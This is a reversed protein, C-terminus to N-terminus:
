MMIVDSSVKIFIDEKVGDSYPKYQDDVKIGPDIIVVSYPIFVFIMHPDCSVM